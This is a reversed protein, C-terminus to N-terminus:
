VVLGVQMGVWGDVWSARPLVSALTFSARFFALWELAALNALAAAEVKSAEVKLFACAKSFTRLLSGGGSTVGGKGCADVTVMAVVVLVFVVMLLLVVMVVSPAAPAPAAVALM